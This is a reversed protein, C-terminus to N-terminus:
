SIIYDYEYKWKTLSLCYDDSLPISRSQGQRSSTIYVGLEAKFWRITAHDYIMISTNVSSHIILQKAGETMIRVYLQIKGARDDDSM